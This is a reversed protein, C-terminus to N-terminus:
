NATEHRIATSIYQGLGLRSWAIVTVQPKMCYGCLTQSGIVRESHARGRPIDDVEVARAILIRDPLMLDCDLLSIERM